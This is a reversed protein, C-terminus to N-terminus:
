FLSIQEPPGLPYADLGRRRLVRCLEGDGAHTVAVERPGIADVYRLLGAFDAVTSLPIAADVRAAAVVTADAAAGAALLFTAATLRNLIPAARGAAPWLLVEDPALKGAFRALPPVPLGADRYTAAATMTARDARMAIGERALALAIARQTGRDQTLLVPERRLALGERAFRVIGALAEDPDPFVFRPSGFSGDVCLADAIRAEPAGVGVPGAYVLRDEDRECLLSAAGPGYGSAFLELRMGGLTFPRGYAAVLAHPRLRSGAPGSLALTAETTLIKRRGARTRPLRHGSQGDLVDAHSLFILDAGTSADCALVSDRVRVGARYTFTRTKGRQM